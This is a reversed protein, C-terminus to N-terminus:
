TIKGNPSIAIANVDVPALNYSDNGSKFIHNDIFFFSTNNSLAIIGEGLTGVLVDGFSDIFIDTPRWRYLMETFDVTKSTYQPSLINFRNTKKDLAVIGHGQMAVLLSDGISVIDQCKKWFTPEGVREIKESLLNYSCLGNDTGIWLTNGDKHLCYVSNGPEEEIAYQKATRSQIDIVSFGAHEHGAFITHSKNDYIFTWIQDSMLGRVNSTNYHEARGTAPDFCDIGNHYTSLWIKGNDGFRLFTIDDSIISSQNDKDHQYTTIQNTDYKIAVLGARQTGVWMTSNVSDNLLCNLENGSLGSQDALKYYKRVKSGFIRNLGEDTAVWIFGHNDQEIDRINNNSLGSVIDITKFATNGKAHITQATCFLIGIFFLCFLLKCPIGSRFARVDRHDVYNFFYRM